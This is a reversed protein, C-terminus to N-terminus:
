RVVAVLEREVPPLTEHTWVDRGRCRGPLGLEALSVGIPVGAPDAPAAPPLATSPSACRPAPRALGPREGDVRRPRRPRVPAPERRQAAWFDDSIRWMNAHRKVHDAATLATEGPSLSLVIPRGTRDIARRIAEIEREHEHYPRSIDDVKVFDVGWPAIREFVSDYYAQAVPKTMDVGLMDPNWPCVSAPDAIDAATVSTGKVTRTV